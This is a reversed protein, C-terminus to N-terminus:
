EVLARRHEKVYMDKEDYIEGVFGVERETPFPRGRFPDHVMIDWPQLHGKNYLWDFFLYDTGYRNTKNFDHCLAKLDLLGYKIEFMGGLVFSNHYPHDRMIHFKFNSKEFENVACVERKSFRCDCDRSAMISVNKDSIAEFRWFLATWNPPRTEVVVETKEISQLKDIYEKPVQHHVYFRSVWDPYFESRLEANRIAGVCYKPNDGWLSYSIVKM